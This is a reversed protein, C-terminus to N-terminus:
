RVELLSRLLGALAPPYVSEDTRDLEDITWWRHQDITDREWRDFGATSVEVSDVQYLYFDQDQRFRREGFSFETVEHWVPDGLAAAPVSLGVEEALERAAAEATSEDADIGGGVTFWYRIEPVAPDFGRFLLVRQASDVLLVRAASRTEIQRDDPAPV